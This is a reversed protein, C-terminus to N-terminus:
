NPYRLKRILRDVKNVKQQITIKSHTDGMNSYVKKLEQLDKINNKNIGNLSIMTFLLSDDSLIKNTKEQLQKRLMNYTVNRNDIIMISSIIKELIESQYEYSKSSDVSFFYEHYKNFIQYYLLNGEKGFNVFGQIQPHDTIESISATQEGL